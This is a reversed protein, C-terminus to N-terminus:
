LGQIANVIQERNAASSNEAGDTIIAIRATPMYGHEVLSKLHFRLDTVMELISDYLATQGQPQYNSETLEVVGDDGGEDLLRFANLVMPRDSFLSQYVYLFHRALVLLARSFRTTTSNRVTHSNDLKSNM